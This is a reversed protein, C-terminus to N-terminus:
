SPRSPSSAWCASSHAGPNTDFGLTFGIFRAWAYESVSRVARRNLQDRRQAILIKRTDCDHGAARTADALQRYPQPAYDPPPGLGRTLWGGDVGDAGTYVLGDVVMSGPAGTPLQISTPHIELTGVHAGALNVAGQYGTGAATFGDRLFLGREV